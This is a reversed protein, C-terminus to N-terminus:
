HLAFCVRIKTLPLLHPAHARFSLVYKFIRTAANTVGTYNRRQDVPLARDNAMRVLSVEAPCSILAAIGGSVCGVVLRSGLDVERYKALSDRMVEFLGFRSTAYFVQRTVGASLGAYLSSVGEKRVIESISRVFGMNQGGSLSALNMRVAVTNFPHVCIWGLIGGLGATTFSLAPSLPRTQSTM